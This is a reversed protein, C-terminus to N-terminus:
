VLPVFRVHCLQRFEPKGKVNKIKYLIQYFGQEIPIVMIGEEKLNEFLKEPFSSAAATVMIRDFKEKFGIEKGDGLILEVNNFKYKGINKKALNHLSVLREVSVVQKALYALIATQYGSGTGIELVKCGKDVQLAETMLAVIYPQSITQGELIPLPTDQYAFQVDEPMVFDARDIHFMAELVEPSKVGRAVIQTEIMEKLSHAM